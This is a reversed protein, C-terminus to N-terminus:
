MQALPKMWPDGKMMSWPIAKSNRRCPIEQKEYRLEKKTVKKQKSPACGETAKKLHTSSLYINQSSVLM